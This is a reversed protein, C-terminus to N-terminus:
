WVEQYGKATKEQMLAEVHEAASAADAFSKVKTQGQL